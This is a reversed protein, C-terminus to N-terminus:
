MSTDLSDIYRQLEAHTYKWERGDQVAILRGARRLEDIRRVSTSLAVAAAAKDYLLREVM